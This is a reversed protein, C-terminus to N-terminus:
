RPAWRAPATSVKSDGEEYADLDVGEEVLRKLTALDGKKAAEILAEEAAAAERLAEEDEEESEEGSM